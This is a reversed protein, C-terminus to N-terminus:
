GLGPLDQGRDLGAAVRVAQRVPRLRARDAETVVAVHPSRRCGSTRSLVTTPGSSAAIVMPHEVGAAIGCGVAEWGVASGPVGDGLGLAVASGVAEGVGSGWAPFM